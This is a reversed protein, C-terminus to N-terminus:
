LKEIEQRVNQWYEIQSSAELGSDNGILKLPSTRIIEDVSILACQRAADDIGYIDDLASGRSNTYIERSVKNEFKRILEKAKKKPTMINGNKGFGYSAVFVRVWSPPNKMSPKTANMYAGYTVDLIGLMDKTSINHEKLISKFEKLNNEM